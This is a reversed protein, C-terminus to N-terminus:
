VKKDIDLLKKVILTGIAIVTITAKATQKMPALNNGFCASTFDECNNFVFNYKGNYDKPNRYFTEAKKVIEKSHKASKPEAHIFVAKGNAFKKLTEKRIKTSSQDLKDDKPNHYHIVKGDGVYIGMHWVVGYIRRKIISGPICEEKRM